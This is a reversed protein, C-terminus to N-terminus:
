LPAKNRFGPEKVIPEDSQEVVMAKKPLRAVYPLPPVDVYPLEVITRQVKQKEKEAGVPPGRKILEENRVNGSEKAVEVSKVGKSTNKDEPPKGAVLKKARRAAIM